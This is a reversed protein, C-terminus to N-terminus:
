AMNLRLLIKLGLQNYRSHQETLIPGTMDIPLSLSSKRRMARFVGERDTKEMSSFQSRNGSDALSLESGQDLLLFGPLRIKPFFKQQRNVSSFFGFFKAWTEAQPSRTLGERGHRTWPRGGLKKGPGEMSRYWDKLSEGFGM